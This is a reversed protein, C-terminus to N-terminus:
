PLLVTPSGAGIVGNIVNDGQRAAPRSGGNIRVLAGEVQTLASSTIRTNGTSSIETLANSDLTLTSSDLTLTSGSRLTQRTAAVMTVNLADVAFGTANDTVTGAGWSGEHNVTIGSGGLASASPATTRNDRGFVVGGWSTYRHNPGVVLNHTGTKGGSGEDYGIVLNGMGSTSDSGGTGDRVHVNCGDLFLDWSNSGISVCALRAQLTTNEAELTEVRTQLQRATQSNVELEAVRVTLADVMAKLQGIPNRVNGGNVPDAAVGGSFLTAGGIVLALASQRFAGM